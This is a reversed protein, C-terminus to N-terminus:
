KEKKFPITKTGDSDTMKLQDGNIVINEALTKRGALERTLNFMVADGVGLTYTGEFPLEVMKGDKTGVIKGTLGGNSRFDLEGAGAPIATEGITTAEPIWKTGEIKGKNNSSCGALFPVALLLLVLFEERM